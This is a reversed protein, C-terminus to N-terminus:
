ALATGAAHPHYARAMPARVRVRIDAWDFRSHWWAIDDTHVVEAGDTADSLRQSLTTKGSSSRGDIALVPPRGPPTGVTALLM